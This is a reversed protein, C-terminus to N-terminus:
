NALAGPPGLRNGSIEGSACVTEEQAELGGSFLMPKANKQRKKRIRMEVNQAEGCMCIIRISDVHSLTEERNPWFFISWLLEMLM